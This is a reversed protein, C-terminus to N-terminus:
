INRRQPSHSRLMWGRGQDSNALCATLPPPRAQYRPPPRRPSFLQVPQVRPELASVKEERRKSAQFTLSGTM